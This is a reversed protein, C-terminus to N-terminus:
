YEKRVINFFDTFKKMHEYNQSIVLSHDGGPIEVYVYQMGIERMKAVWQRTLTVLGDEDGQLVLIPIHKIKNLIETSASREPAPAAVGLGAFLDPHKAAIHYTGAGGMSHGWLYIRNADINFEDRVLQLVAMVDQESYDADQAAELARSGYWGRRVYGLPTVVIYGNAEAEDLLGHYGMLWDHARGLGHLSVMIPSPKSADYSSPVFLAYPLTEGTPAFTYSRHQVRPDDITREDDSLQREAFVNNITMCSLLLLINIATKTFLRIQTLMSKEKNKNQSLQTYRQLYEVSLCCLM